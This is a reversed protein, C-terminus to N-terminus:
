LQQVELNCTMYESISSFYTSNAVKFYYTNGRMIYLNCMYVCSKSDVFWIIIKLCKFIYSSQYDNRLHVSNDTESREEFTLSIPCAKIAM